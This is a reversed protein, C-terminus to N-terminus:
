GLRDLAQDLQIPLARARLGTAHHVASAIAAATGVIGLEGLGKVGIPNVEHDREDLCVAEIEAVDANAAVHYGAFDHNVYAGFRPDLVSQEHLAMSIGMTMGGILQSRATKPNVIRGAAFVGLLRPVRIEGTDADVRVEAFQAGFAHRALPEEAELDDATDVVVEVGEPPVAGGAADLRQCLAECAKAVASGWSATGMSGGAPPAAPFATDGLELRVREVPGGLADAAIQALATRAGTGMDSAALRVSFGGDPEARALAGSPRRRAPYTSAAVGSGLLWRGQHRGGPTPDREAWGFRAAGERLCAVLNRSSFRRGSEPDLAPENRIRLEVPDLGCAEALEDMASELAFSGPCEGPARMWTPSPVDLRALRHSTRRNASDYLMRTILATQEAFEILTSSQEAVEHSIAVLRGDRAAGLRVRQVTPTRYGGAAFMQQRTMAVKVPRGAAQAAMAALIATPRARLKAGFGGGVHRSIVRVREPELGFARAAAQRVMTPAQTSDHLTLGGREWVAMCAHPEMPNNHTTSTRYTREVRVEAAGFAAEFDGQETDTELAPNITEPRYLGPHDERLEVDHPEADYRVRVLRGAQRAVEQSTAVVAAVFQGRYAVRDSQFLALEPNDVEHLRPADGHWLVALVGPQALAASADVSRVAGKAITSQVAVAWAAGDRDGETAYRATGTVKERAEARDLPRGTARALEGTGVGTSDM